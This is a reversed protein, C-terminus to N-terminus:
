FTTQTNSCLRPSRVLSYYNLTIYIRNVYFSSTSEASFKFESALTRDAHLSSQSKVSFTFARPRHPLCHKNQTASSSPPSIKKRRKLHNPPFLSKFSYVTNKTIHLAEYHTPPSFMSIKKLFCYYM